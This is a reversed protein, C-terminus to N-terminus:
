TRSCGRITPRTTCLSPDGHHRTSAPTRRGQRPGCRASDAGRSAMRPSGCVSGCKCGAGQPAFWRAGEGIQVPWGCQARTRHTQREGAYMEAAVMSLKGDARRVVIGDELGGKNGPSGPGATPSSMNKPGASSANIQTFAPEWVLKIDPCANMAATERYYTQWTPDSNSNTLGTKYYVKVCSTVPVSVNSEFTFGACRDHAACWAEAAALTSQIHIALDEVAASISGVRHVWTGVPPHRATVSLLALLVLLLRAQM